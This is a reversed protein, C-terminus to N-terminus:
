GEGDQGWRGEGERRGPTGEKEQTQNLQISNSRPGPADASGSEWSFVSFQSTGSYLRNLFM